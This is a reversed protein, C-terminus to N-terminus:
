HINAALIRCTYQVVVLYEFICKVADKVVCECRNRSMEAWLLSPGHCVRGM